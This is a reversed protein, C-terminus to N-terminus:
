WRSWGWGSAGVVVVALAMCTILATGHGRENEGAIYKDDDSYPNLRTYSNLNM